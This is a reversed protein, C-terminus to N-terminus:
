WSSGFKSVREVGRQNGTQVCASRESKQTFVRTGSSSITVPLRRCINGMTSAFISVQSDLSHRQVLLANMELSAKSQLHQRIKYTFGSFSINKMNRNSFPFLVTGGCARHLFLHVRGKRNKFVHYKMFPESICNLLLMLLMLEQLWLFPKRTKGEQHQLMKKGASQALSLTVGRTPSMLSENKEGLLAKIYM